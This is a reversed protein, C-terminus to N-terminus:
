RDCLIRTQLLTGWISRIVSRNMSGVKTEQLRFTSLIQKGVRYFTRFKLVKKKM